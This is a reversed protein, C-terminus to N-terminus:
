DPVEKVEVGIGAKDFFHAFLAHVCGDNGADHGNGIGRLQKSERIGTARFHGAPNPQPQLTKTIVASGNLGEAQVDDAVQALPQTCGPHWSQM